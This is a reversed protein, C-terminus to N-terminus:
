GAEGVFRKLKQCTLWEDGPNDLARQIMTHQCLQHNCGIRLLHRLRNGPALYARHQGAAAM